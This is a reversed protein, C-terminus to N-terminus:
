SISMKIWCGLQKYNFALAVSTQIAKGKENQIGIDAM